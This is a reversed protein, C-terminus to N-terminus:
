EAVDDCRSPYTTMGHNDYILYVFTIMPNGDDSESILRSEIDLQGVVVGGVVYDRSHLLECVLLHLETISDDRRTSTFSGDM